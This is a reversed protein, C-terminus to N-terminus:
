RAPSCSSEPSVPPRAYIAPSTVTLSFVPLAALLLMSLTVSLAQRKLASM